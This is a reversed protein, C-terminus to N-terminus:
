NCYKYMTYFYIAGTHGLSAESALKVTLCCLVSVVVLDLAGGECDLHETNISISTPHIDLSEEIFFPSLGYSHVLFIKNQPQTCTCKKDEVYTLKIINVVADQPFIIREQGMTRLCLTHRVKDLLIHTM